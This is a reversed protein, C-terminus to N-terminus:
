KSKEVMYDVAAKVEDDSLKSNGGRPPMMGKGKFGKISHTYLTDMGQAIRDKWAAADGTKPAGAMGRDHCMKCTKKYVEEGTSAFATGATMPLAVLATAMAITKATKKLPM